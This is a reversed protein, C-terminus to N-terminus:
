ACANVAHGRPGVCRGSAIRRAPLTGSPAIYRSRGGSAFSPLLAGVYDASTEAHLLGETSTRPAMGLWACVWLYARGSLSSTSIGPSDRAVQTALNPLTKIGRSREGLQDLHRPSECGDSAFWRVRYLQVPLSLGGGGAGERESVPSLGSVLGM